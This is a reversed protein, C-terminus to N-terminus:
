FGSLGKTSLRRWKIGFTYQEDSEMSESSHIM